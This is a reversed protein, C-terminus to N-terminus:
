KEEDSQKSYERSGATGDLGMLVSPSISLPARHGNQFVVHVRLRKNGRSAGELERKASLEEEQEDEVDFYFM